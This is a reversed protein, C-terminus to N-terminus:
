VHGVVPGGAPPPDDLNVGRLVGHKRLIGHVTGPLPGPIARAFVKDVAHVPVGRVTHVIKAQVLPLPQVTRLKTWRWVEEAKLAWKATEHGCSNTAAAATSPSARPM